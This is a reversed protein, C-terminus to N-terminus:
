VRDVKQFERSTRRNCACATAMILLLLSMPEPVAAPTSVGTGNGATQGFHSRWVDYDAQDIVGNGNGDAAPNITSGLADRWLVYDASDVIGNHNYDGPVGGVSITGTTYLQNTNWTLGGPLTPLKVSSFTGSLSAWNLIDFSNGVAPIFGNTLSVALTGGLTLQGTSDITDYQDGRTTGGLALM